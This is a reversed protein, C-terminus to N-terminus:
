PNSTNEVQHLKRLRTPKNEKILGKIFTLIKQTKNCLQQATQANYLQKPTKPEGAVECKYRVMTLHGM